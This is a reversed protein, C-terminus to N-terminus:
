IIQKPSNVLSYLKAIFPACNHLVEITTTNEELGFYANLSPDQPNNM